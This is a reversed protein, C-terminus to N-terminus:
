KIITGIVTVSGAVQVQLRFRCGSGAVQVQLRCGSGAVQISLTILKAWSLFLQLLAALRELIESAKATRVLGRDLL